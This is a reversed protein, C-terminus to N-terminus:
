ATKKNLLKKIETYESELVKLKEIHEARFQDYKDSEKKYYEISSQTSKINAEIAKLTEEFM